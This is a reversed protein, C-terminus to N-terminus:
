KKEGQRPWTVFLKYVGGTICRFSLLLTCRSSLPTAPVLLIRLKKTVVMCRAFVFSGLAIWSITIRNVLRHVGPVLVRIRQVGPVLARLRLLPPVVPPVLVVHVPLKPIVGSARCGPPDREREAPCM